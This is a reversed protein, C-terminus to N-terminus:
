IKKSDNPNQWEAIVTDIFKFKINTDKSFNQVNIKNSYIFENFAEIIKYM